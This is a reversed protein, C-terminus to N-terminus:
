NKFLKLHSLTGFGFFVYAWVYLINGPHGSYFSDDISSILYITDGAVNLIMGFLIMTWLFNIKGRFFLFVAIVAPILIVGDLIPYIVYLFLTLTDIESTDLAIFLSPIVVLLSFLSSTLIMKKSIIDKRSKLYFITFGLLLPYGSIFFIDSTLSSINELTYEYNYSYSIEGLFWSIMSLTFFIWAIGNNGRAKYKFCLLGGFVAAIFSGIITLLDTMFLSKNIPFEEQHIVNAILFVIVVAVLLFILSKKNELADLNTRM